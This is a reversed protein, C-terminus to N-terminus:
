GAAALPDVVDPGAPKPPKPGPKPRRGPGSWPRERVRQDMGDDAVHALDPPPDASLYGRVLRSRWDVVRFVEGAAVRQWIEGLNHNLEHGTITSLPRTEVPHEALETM